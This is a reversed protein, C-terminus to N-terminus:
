QNLGVNAGGFGGSLIRSIFLFIVVRADTCRFSTTASFRGWAQPHCLNWIRMRQSNTLLIRKNQKAQQEILVRVQERLYDIANYQEKDICYALCTILPLWLKEKM